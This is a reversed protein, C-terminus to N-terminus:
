TFHSNIVQLTHKIINSLAEQVIRYVNMEQEESFADDIEEISTSLELSTTAAVQQVLDRLTETLGSRELQLPRLNRSIRRVDELLVTATEATQELGSKIEPDIAYKKLTLYLQNKIVLAEQGVSDHLDGAMRKREHEQSDLLRRSFQQQLQRERREAEVAATLSQAHAARAKYEAAEARLDSARRKDRVRRFLLFAVILLLATGAIVINRILTERELLDAQLSQERTM